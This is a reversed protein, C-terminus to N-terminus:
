LTSIVPKQLASHSHAPRIKRGQIEEQSRLDVPSFRNFSKRIFFFFLQCKVQDFNFDLPIAEIESSRPYVGPARAEAESRLWRSPRGPVDPAAPLPCRAAGLHGPQCASAGSTPRAGESRTQM